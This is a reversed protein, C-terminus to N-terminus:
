PQAMTRLGLIAFATSADTILGHNFPHDKNVSWAQWSGDAAQHSTLWATAAQLEPSSQPVGANRLVHVVLGTAYGDSRTPDNSTGDLRQWPGFAPLSFGGDANRLALTEAVLGDRTADDVVDLASDAWLLMVKNHAHQQPLNTSLYGRLSEVGAAPAQGGVYGPAKGVALAALCAGLYEADQSEWPALAFDLWDWGGDTRQEDFLRTLAALTSPSLTGSQADRMSLAFANLIAETGRSEAAKQTTSDYWLAVQPFSAVRSEVTGRIASATTLPGVALDVMLYPHTTHCSLACERGQYWSTARTELYSVAGAQNWAPVQYGEEEEPPPEQQGTTAEDDDAPAQTVVCGTSTMCGTNALVVLATASWFRKTPTM